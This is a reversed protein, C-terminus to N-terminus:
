LGWRGWPQPSRYQEDRHLVRDEGVTPGAKKAAEARRLVQVM